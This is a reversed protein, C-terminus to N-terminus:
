VKTENYLAKWAEPIQEESIILSKVVELWKPIIIRWDFEKLSKETAKFGLEKRLAEDKYLRLMKKAVDWPDALDCEVGNYSGYTIRHNKNFKPCESILGIDGVLESHTSSDNAIIPLATAAAEALPLCFGEMGGLQLYVDMSQFLMPMVEPPVNGASFMVNKGPELGYDLAQQVLDYEGAGGPRPNTHLLLVMKGKEADTLEKSNLFIKFAQLYKEPNKRQMNKFVGGFVFTEGSLGAQTKIQKKAEEPAPKFMSTDVGHYIVTSEIGNDKMINQGYKTMAVVKDAAKICATWNSPWKTNKGEYDWVNGDIVPYLLWTPKNPIQRLMDPVWMLMRADAQTILIEPKIQQIYYPLVDEGFTGNGSPLLKYGGRPYAGDSRFGWGLFYTEYGAEALGNCVNHAINGFGTLRSHDTMYIIKEKM